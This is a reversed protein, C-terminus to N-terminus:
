KASSIAEHFAVGERIGSAFARLYKVVNPDLTSIVQKGYTDLYLKALDDLASAIYVREIETLKHKAAFIDVFAKISAPTLEIGIAATDAAAALALLADDKTPNNILVATVLQKSVPRVIAAVTDAKDPSVGSSVCGTLLILSTIILLAPKM